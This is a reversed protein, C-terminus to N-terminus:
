ELASLVHIATASLKVSHLGLVNELISYFGKFASDYCIDLVWHLCFCMLIAQIPNDAKLLQNETLVMCPGLYEDNDLIVCPDASFWPARQKLFSSLKEKVTRPLATLFALTTLMTGEAMGLLQSTIPEMKERMMNVVTDVHKQAAHVITKIPPKGGLLKFEHFILEPRELAPYQQLLEYMSPRSDKVWHRRAHFTRTMSDTLKELSITAGKMEQQMSKIHMEVSQEDETSQISKLHEESYLRKASTSSSSTSPHGHKGYKQRMEAVEGDNLFKKREFKCKFKMGHHWSDYGFGLSDKLVAHHFVLQRAAEEYLKGPYMTYRFLDFSLWEIIRRRLTSTVESRKTVKSLNYLIDKPVTPFVYNKPDLTAEKQVTPVAPTVEATVLPHQTPLEPPELQVARIKSSPTLITGEEWDLFEGLETDYVQFLLNETTKAEPFRTLFASKVTELNHDEPIHLPRCFKGFFAVCRLM